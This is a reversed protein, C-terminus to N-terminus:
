LGMDKALVIAKARTEVELKDLINTIHNRVTQESIFLKDGIESNGLGRAMVQLIERERKTLEDFHRPNPPAMIADSGHLFRNVAANFADFAPEDELLIHNASDLVMFEAKSLEAAIYQSAMLPIMEDRESHMILTPIDKDKLERIAEMADMSGLVDFILAAVDKSATKTSLDAYWEIHEPKAEPIFLHAFPTTFASGHEGWGAKALSDLARWHEKVDAPAFENQWSTPAAGNLVLKDIREPHRAAYNLAVTGGQSMGFLSFKELELHDVVAELDAVWDDLELSGINRESLGCGREDYRILQNNQSLARCWHGWVPGQWDQEIHTLWTAARVLPPGEGSTAYALRVNDQAKLFGVKQEM